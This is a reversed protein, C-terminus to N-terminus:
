LKGVHQLNASLAPCFYSWTSPVRLRDGLSRGSPRALCICRTDIAAASSNSVSKSLRTFTPHGGATDLAVVQVFFNAQQSADTAVLSVGQLPRDTRWGTRPRSRM